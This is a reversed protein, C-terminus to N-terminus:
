FLGKDKKMNRQKWAPKNAFENRSMKFVEFFEANSLYDELRKKNVSVDGFEKNQLDKYSIVDNPEADDKM